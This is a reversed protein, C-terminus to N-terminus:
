SLFEQAFTDAMCRIVHWEDAWSLHRPPATPTTNADVIYIRGDGNDRLVDLEGYDLKLQECFDAILKLEADSLIDESKCLVARFYNRFRNNLYRYKLCVFPIRKGFVPVRIEGVMNDEYRNDILKQYVCDDRPEVIPCRVVRGDHKFNVNSKEVCLGDFSKPDVALSYGFVRAFHRQINDKSIDLCDANICRGRRRISALTDDPKRWTM